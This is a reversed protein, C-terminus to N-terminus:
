ILSFLMFFDKITIVISIFFLFIFSLNIIVNQLNLNIPKKFIFEYFLFLLQGGDLAFIPLMNFIGVNMSLFSFLFLLSVFNFKENNKVINFIGLPGVFDKISFNLCFIKCISFIIIKIFFLFNTYTQSIFSKLDIKKQKLTFGLVKKEGQDTKIIKGVDLIKLIENGRKVTLNVPQDIRNKNLKYLFDNVNLIKSDNMKEINDCVKIKDCYVAVNEVELSNYKGQILFIPAILFFGFLLNFIPGALIM